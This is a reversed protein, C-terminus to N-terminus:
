ERGFDKSNKLLSGERKLVVARVCTCSCSNSSIIISGAPRHLLHLVLVCSLETHFAHVGFRTTCCLSTSCEQKKDTNRLQKLMRVVKEKKYGSM